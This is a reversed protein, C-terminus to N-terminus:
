LVTPDGICLREGIDFLADLNFGYVWNDGKIVAKGVTTHGGPTSFSISICAAGV